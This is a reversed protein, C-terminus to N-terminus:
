CGGARARGTARPLEHSGRLDLRDDIKARARSGVASRRVGVGAAVAAASTLTVLAPAYQWADGVGSGWWSQHLGLVYLPWIVVPLLVAWWRNLLLGGAFCGVVIIVWGLPKGTSTDGVV